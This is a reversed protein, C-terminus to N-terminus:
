RYGLTAPWEQATRADGPDVRLRRRGREGVVVHPEDNGWAVLARIRRAVAMQGEDRLAAPGAVEIPAWASLTLTEDAHEAVFGREHKAWRRGGQLTAVSEHLHRDASDDDSDANVTM